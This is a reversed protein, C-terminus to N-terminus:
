IFNIRVSGGIMLGHGLSLASVVVGRGGSPMGAHRFSDLRLRDAIERLVLLHLVRRFLDLSLVDGVQVGRQLGAAVGGLPPSAGALAGVGLRGEAAVLFGKIGRRGLRVKRLEARRRLRAREDLLVVALQLWGPRALDRRERGSVVRPLSARRRLRRPQLVLVRRRLHHPLRQLAEVCRQQQAGLASAAGSRRGVRQKRRAPRGSGGGSVGGAIGSCVPRHRRDLGGSDVDVIREVRLRVSWIKPPFVLLRASVVGTALLRIHRKVAVRLVLLPQGGRLGFELVVYLLPRELDLDRGGRVMGAVGIVHRLLPEDGLELGLIGGPYRRLSAHLLRWRVM